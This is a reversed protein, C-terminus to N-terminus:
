NTKKNMQKKLTLFNRKVVTLLLKKYNFDKLVRKVYLFLGRSTNEQLPTNQPHAASERRRMRAHTHNIYLQLATKNLDRKQM